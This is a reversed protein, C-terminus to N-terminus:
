QKRRSRLAAGEHDGCKAGFLLNMSHLYESSQLRLCLFDLTGYTYTATFHKLLATLAVASDLTLQDTCAFEIMYIEMPACGSVGATGSLAIPTRLMPRSKVRM